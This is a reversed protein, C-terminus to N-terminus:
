PLKCDTMVAKATIWPYHTNIAPVRRSWRIRFAM